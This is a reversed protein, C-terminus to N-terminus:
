YVSLSNDWAEISMTGHHPCPFFQKSYEPNCFGLTGRPAEDLSQLLLQINCSGEPPHELMGRPASQLVHPLIRSVVPVFQSRLLLEALHSWTCIKKLLERELSVYPCNRLSHVKKRMVKSLKGGSCVKAEM